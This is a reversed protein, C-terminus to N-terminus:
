LGSFSSACSAAAESLDHEWKGDTNPDGALALATAELVSKVITSERSNYM